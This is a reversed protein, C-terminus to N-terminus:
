RSPSSATRPSTAVPEPRHVPRPDARLHGHRPHDRRRGDPPVDHAAGAPRPLVVAGEVPEADPQHQGAALLPANVFISFVFTFALASWRRRRVRRRAPAAVRPGQRGPTAKVDQISGSKVVTLLRQTHGGPGAGLPVGGAAAAAPRGRRRRDAVAVAGGGGAGADADGGGEAKRRPPRPQARAPPGPDAPRGRPARGRPRRRPPQRPRGDARRAPRPAAAKERAEEARKRLHEPIETM